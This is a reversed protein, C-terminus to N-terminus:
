RDAGAAAGPVVAAVLTEPRRVEVETGAVRRLPADHEPLEEVPPGHDIARAAPPDVRAPGRGGSRAGHGPREDISVSRGAPGGESVSAARAAAPVARGRPWGRTPPSRCPGDQRSRAGVLMTVAQEGRGRRKTSTSAM